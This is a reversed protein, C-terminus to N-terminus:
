DKSIISRAKIYVVKGNQGFVLEDDERKAKEVLRKFALQTGKVIKDRLESYRHNDGM